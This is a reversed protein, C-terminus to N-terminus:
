TVNMMTDESCQGNSGGQRCWAMIYQTTGSAGSVILNKILNGQVTRTGYPHGPVNGDIDLSAISGSTSVGFDSLESYWLGDFGLVIGSGQLTTATKGAGEIRIGDANRILLTDSGFMCTGAPFLLPKNLKTNTGHESGDPGFAANAAAKIAAYDLEQTLSTIFPYVVQAAALSGYFSSLLHLNGDCLVSRDPTYDRVDVVPKAHAVYTTRGLLLRFSDLGRRNTSEDWKRRRDMYQARLLLLSCKYHREM